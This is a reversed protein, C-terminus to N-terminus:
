VVLMEKIRHPGSLPKLILHFTWGATFRDLPFVIRKSGETGFPALKDIQTAPDFAFIADGTFGQGVVLIFRGGDLVVSVLLDSIDEERETTIRRQKSDNVAQLLLSGTGAFLLVGTMELGGVPM